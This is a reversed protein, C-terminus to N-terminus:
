FLGRVVGILVRLFKKCSFLWASDIPFLQAHKYPEMESGTEERMFSECAVGRFPFEAARSIVVISSQFSSIQMFSYKYPSKM